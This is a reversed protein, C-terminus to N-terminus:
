RRRESMKIRYTTQDANLGQVRKTETREEGYILCEKDKESYSVLSCRPIMAACEKLCQDESWAFMRKHADIGLTQIDVKEYLSDREFLTEIKPSDASDSNPIYSKSYLFAAALIMIMTLSLLCTKKRQYWPPVNQEGPKNRYENIMRGYIKFKEVTKERVSKMIMWGHESLENIKKKIRPKGKEVEQQPQDQRKQELMVHKKTKEAVMMSQHDMNEIDNKM